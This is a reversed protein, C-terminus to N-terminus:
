KRDIMKEVLGGARYGTMRLLKIRKAEGEKRYLFDIRKLDEDMEMMAKRITKSDKKYMRILYDMFIKYNYEMKALLHINEQKEESLNLYFEVSEHWVKLLDRHHNFLSNVDVSQGDRGLRYNYLVEGNFYAMNLYPAAYLILLSDTYLTGHPLNKYNDRLLETRFAADWVPYYFGEVDKLEKIQGAHPEWDPVNKRAEDGLRYVHNTVYLDVDKTVMDTIVEDLVDGNLWDDADVEKFYKGTAKQIAMNINSGWGGNEKNVPIFTDPYRQGYETAIEATRDKSGDNMILVELKDSNKIILSDLCGALYEEMNYACIAITLIKM